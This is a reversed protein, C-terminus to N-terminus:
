QPDTSAEMIDETIKTLKYKSPQIQTRNTSITDARASSIGGVTSVTTKLNSIKSHPTHVNLFNDQDANRSKQDVAATEKDEHILLNKEDEPRACRLITM